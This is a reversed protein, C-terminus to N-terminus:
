QALLASILKHLGEKNIEGLIRYRILGGRDTIFTTPIGTIGYKKATSSDTDLPISYSVRISSIYAEVASLNEGVNISYPRFGKSKYSQYLAEVAMIEKLCYPCWSAWFHLLGVGGKLDGPLTVKLGQRDLLVAQPLLDGVKLAAEAKRSPGLFTLAPVIAALLGGRIFERRTPVAPFFRPAAIPPGKLM